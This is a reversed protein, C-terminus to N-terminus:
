TNLGWHALDVVIRNGIRSRHIRMHPFSFVFQPAQAVAKITAPAARTGAVSGPFRAM